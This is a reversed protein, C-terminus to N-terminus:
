RNEIRKGMKNKIKNLYDKKEQPVMRSERAKQIAKNHTWHDLKKNEIFPVAAVWQKTLATAFFWAIMMDVYYEDSRIKAVWDLYKEDFDEDLFHTMLMKIGFRCTYPHDSNIWQKIETLLQERHNKFIKPNLSDCVAWNDIYPLFSNVKELCMDYDQCENIILSHLINEDYFDHPLSELFDRHRTDKILHRVLERIKPMRVGMVTDPDITPILRSQFNKYKQDSLEFLQEQITM